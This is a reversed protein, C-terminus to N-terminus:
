VTREKRSGRDGEVPRLEQDEFIEVEGDRFVIVMAAGPMEPPNEEVIEM